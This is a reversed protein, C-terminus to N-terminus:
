PQHLRAREYPAREEPTVPEVGIVRHNRPLFDAARVELHPMLVKLVGRGRLDRADEFTPAKPDYAILHYNYGVPQPYDDVHVVKYTRVGPEKESLTFAAVVAGAVIDKGDPDPAPIPKDCGTAALALVLLLPITRAM